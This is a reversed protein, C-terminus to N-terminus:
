EAGCRSCRPIGGTESLRVRYVTRKLGSCRLSKHYCDGEETIYCNVGPDDGCYACPKFGRAECQAEGACPTVTLKLHTCNRSLHYVERNDTVYVYPDKETEKENESAESEGEGVYARQRIKIHRKVTLAPFFPVAVRLSYDACLVVTDGDLHTRLFSVGSAGGVVYREVRKKDDVYGAFKLKPVLGSVTGIYAYEATYEAAEACAEYVASEAIHVQHMHYVALMAFLFLPLILTAEVVASGRNKNNVIEKNLVKEAAGKLM